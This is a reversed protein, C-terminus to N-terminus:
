EVIVIRPGIKKPVSHYRSSSTTTMAVIYASEFIDQDELMRYNKLERTSKDLDKMYIMEEICAQVRQEYIKIWKKYLGFRSAINLKNLAYQDCVHENSQDLNTTYYNNYNEASLKCKTKECVM